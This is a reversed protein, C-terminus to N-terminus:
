RTQHLQKIDYRRMKSRNLTIRGMIPAKGQKDLNNKKLYLM